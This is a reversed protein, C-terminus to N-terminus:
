SRYTQLRDLSRNAVTIIGREWTLRWTLQILFVNSNYIALGHGVNVEFYIPKYLSQLWKYSMIKIAWVAPKVLSHVFCNHFCIHICIYIYM